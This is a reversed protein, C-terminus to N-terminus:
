LFGWTVSCGFASDGLLVLQWFIYIWSDELSLSYCTCLGQPLFTKSLNLSNLFHLHPLWPLSCLTFASVLNILLIMVHLSYLTNYNACPKSCVSDWNLWGLMGILKRLTVFNPALCVPVRVLFETQVVGSPVIWAAPPAMWIMAQLKFLVCGTGSYM